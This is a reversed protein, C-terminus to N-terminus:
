KIMNFYRDLSITRPSSYLLQPWTEGSPSTKWDTKLASLIQKLHVQDTHPKKQVELIYLAYHNKINRKRVSFIQPYNWALWTHFPVPKKISQRGNDVTMLIYNKTKTPDFAIYARGGPALADYVQELLYLPDPSFSYAGFIDLIINAQGHEEVVESLRIEALGQIFYFEGQDKFKIEEPTRPSGQISNIGVTILQNKRALERMAKAQGAGLDIILSGEPIPDKLPREHAYKNQLIQIYESLTSEQKNQLIKKSLSLEIISRCLPTGRSAFLPLSTLLPILFSILLKAM